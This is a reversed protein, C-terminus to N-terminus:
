MIHHAQPAVVATPNVALITQSRKEESSLVVVEVEHLPQHLFSPAICDRLTAFHTHV